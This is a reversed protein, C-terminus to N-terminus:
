SRKKRFGDIDHKETLQKIDVLEQGSYGSVWSRRASTDLHIHNKYVGIGTIGARSAAVITDDRQAETVKIDVAYGTNHITNGVAGMRKPNGSKKTRGSIIEYSHGTQKQVRIVRALLKDNLNQFEKNSIVKSSFTIQPTLFTAEPNGQLALIDSMEEQTIGENTLYDAERNSPPTSQQKAIIKDKKAKRDEDSVRLAGYKVAKQTNVANQSKLVASESFLSGAFRQMKIAPAMLIMQLDRAMQCLRFMLNAINEPTLREFSSALEAVLKEMDEIMGKVTAGQMYNQIDQLIKGAKKMVAMSAKAVGYVAGLVAAIAATAAKRAANVAEEIIKKLIDLLTQLIGKQKISEALKKVDKELLNEVQSLLAKGAKVVAFVKTLDELVDNYAGCLKGTLDQGINSALHFDLDGLLNAIITPFISITGGLGLLAAKDSISLGVSQNYTLGPATAGLQNLANPNVGSTGGTVGGITGQLGTAGVGTGGSTTTTSGVGSFAGGVGIGTDTELNIGTTDGSGLGASGIVGSGSGGGTGTGTGTGGSGDPFDSTSLGIDSEESGVTGNINTLGSGSDVQLHSQVLGKGLLGDISSSLNAAADTNGQGDGSGGSGSRKADALTTSTDNYETVAELLEEANLNNNGVFDAIDTVSVGANEEVRDKVRPYDDIVSNLLINNLGKTLAVLSNRNSNNLSSSSENALKQLDLIADVLASSDEKLLGGDGAGAGSALPTTNNCDISM